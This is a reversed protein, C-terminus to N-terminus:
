IRVTIRFEVLNTLAVSASGLLFSLRGQAWSAVSPAPGDHGYAANIGKAMALHLVRTM